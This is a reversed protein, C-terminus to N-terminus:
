RRRVVLGAVVLTVLACAALLVGRATGAPLAADNLRRAVVVIVVAAALGYFVADAVREWRHGAGPGATRAPPVPARREHRTRTGGPHPAPATRHRDLLAM